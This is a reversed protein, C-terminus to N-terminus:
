NLSIQDHSLKKNTEAVNPLNIANTFYDCKGGCVAETCKTYVVCWAMLESFVASDDIFPIYLVNLGPRFVVELDRQHYM